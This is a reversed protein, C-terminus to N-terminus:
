LPSTDYKVTEFKKDNELKAKVFPCEPIITLDKERTFGVARELLKTALGRGEFEKEVLTHDINITSRDVWQYTMKGAYQGDNYILFSGDKGDDQHEIQIM